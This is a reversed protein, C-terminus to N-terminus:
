VGELEEELEEELDKAYSLSEVFGTGTRKRYRGIFKVRGAEKLTQIESDTAQPISGKDHFTIKEM